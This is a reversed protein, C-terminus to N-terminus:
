EYRLDLRYTALLQREEGGEELGYLDMRYSGAALFRHPLQVTFVDDEGRRIEDTTWVVGVGRRDGESIVELEYGPARRDDLLALALVLAGSHEPVTVTGRGGREVDPNLTHVTPNAVPLPDSGLWM